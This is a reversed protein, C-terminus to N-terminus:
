QQVKLLAHLKPQYYHGTNTLDLAKVCTTYMLLITTRAIANYDLMVGQTYARRSVLMARSFLGDWFSVLLWGNEPAIKTEPLTYSGM